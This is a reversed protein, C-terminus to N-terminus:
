MRLLRITRPSTARTTDSRRCQVLSTRRGSAAQDRRANVTLGGPTSAAHHQAGAPHRSQHAPEAACPSPRRPLKDRIASGPVSAPKSAGDRPLRGEASSRCVCQPRLSAGGAGLPCSPSTSWSCAPTALSPSSDRTQGSSGPRRPAMPNIDRIDLASCSGLLDQFSTMYDSATKVAVDTSLDAAVMERCRAAVAKSADRHAEESGVTNLVSTFPRFGPRDSLCFTSMSSTPDTDIRRRSVWSSLDTAVSRRSRGAAQANAVPAAACGRPGRPPWEGMVLGFRGPSPNRWGSREPRQHESGDASGSGGPTSASRCAAQGDLRRRSYKPRNARRPTLSM